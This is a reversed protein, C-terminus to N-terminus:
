IITHTDSCLKFCWIIEWVNIHLGAQFTDSHLTFSMTGLDVAYQDRFKCTQKFYTIRDKETENIQSFPGLACQMYRQQRELIIYSARAINPKFIRRVLM